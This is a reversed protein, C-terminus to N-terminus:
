NPFYDYHLVDLYSDSAGIKPAKQVMSLINGNDDYGIGYNSSVDLGHVHYEMETTSWSSGTSNQFFTAKKLRNAADYEYDFRRQV